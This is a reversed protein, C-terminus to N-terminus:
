FLVEENQEEWLDILYPRVLMGRYRINRTNLSCSKKFCNSMRAKFTKYEQCDPETNIGMAIALDLLDNFLDIFEEGTAADYLAINYRQKYCYDLNIGLEKKVKAKIKAYQEKTIKQEKKAM